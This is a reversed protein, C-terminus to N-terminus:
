RDREDRSMRNMKTFRSKPVFRVEFIRPWLKGTVLIRDGTMDYAIGNLVDVNGSGPPLLGTMDIWATVRGTFPDIRAIYDTLWVNAYIQGDIYELENLRTVYAGDRSVRITREVAFTEPDLYRITDTGDSMILSHGDTTLGWGEGTYSFEGLPAFTEFDYVFGKQHQWTLQYLKGDLETLGEAFYQPSVDVNRRVEGTEPAVERLSSRGYLGTSEYLTGDRWILGQTFANRDHPWSAVVEYTLVPASYSEVSGVVLDARKAPRQANALPVVTAIVVAILAIRLRM